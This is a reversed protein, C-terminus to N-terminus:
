TICTELTWVQKERQSEYIEQSFQNKIENAQERWTFTLLPEARFPTNPQKENLDQIKAAMTVKSRSDPDANNTEPELTFTKTDNFI